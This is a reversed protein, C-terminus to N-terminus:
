GPIGDLMVVLETFDVRDRLVDLDSDQKQQATNKYGVDDAQKLWAM